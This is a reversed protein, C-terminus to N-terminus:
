LYCLFFEPSTKSFIGTFPGSPYFNALFFDKATLTADMAIVSRSWAKFPSGKLETNEDSPVKIEADVAGWQPTRPRFLHSVLWLCCSYVHLSRVNKATVTWLKKVHRTRNCPRQWTKDRNLEAPDYLTTERKRALSNNRFYWRYLRFVRRPRPLKKNSRDM